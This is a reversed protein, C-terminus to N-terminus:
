KHPVFLPSSGRDSRNESSFQGNLVPQMKTGSLGSRHSGVLKDGKKEDVNKTCYIMSIVKSECIDSIGVLSITTFELSCESIAIFM